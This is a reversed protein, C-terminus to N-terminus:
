FSLTNIYPIAPDSLGTDDVRVCGKGAQWSDNLDDGVEPLVSFVEVGKHNLASRLSLYAKRGADDNELAFGIKVGLKKSLEYVQDVQSQSISSGFTCVGYYGYHWASLATFPGECVLIDAGARPFELLKSSKSFGTSTKAKMGKHIPKLYRLQYGVTKNGSNVLFVVANARHDVKIIDDFEPVYGRKVAYEASPHDPMAWVPLFTSLDLQDPADTQSIVPENVMQNALPDKPAEPIMRKLNADPDSGHVQRIRSEPLDYKRLYSSSSYGQKCSGRLCGGMFKDDDEDIGHVRFLVKYTDSGCAPCSEVALSVGSERYGIGLEDLAEKFLDLNM